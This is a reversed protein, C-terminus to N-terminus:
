NRGFTRANAQVTLQCLVLHNRIAEPLEEFERGTLRRVSLDSEFILMTGCEICVSLDGAAPGAFENTTNTCRDFKHHCEPCNGPPQPHTPM